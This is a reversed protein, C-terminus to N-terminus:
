LTREKKKEGLWRKGEKRVKEQIAGGARYADGARGRFDELYVYVTGSVAQRKGSM